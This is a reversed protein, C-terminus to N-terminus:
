ASDRLLITSLQFYRANEPDIDRQYKTKMWTLVM